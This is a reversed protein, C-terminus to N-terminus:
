AKAPVNVVFHVSLKMPGCVSANSPSRYAACLPSHISCALGFDQEGKTYLRNLFYGIMKFYM